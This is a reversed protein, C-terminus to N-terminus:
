SNKQDIKFDYFEGNGIKHKGIDGIDEENENYLRISKIGGGGNTLQDSGGDLAAAIRVVSYRGDDPQAFLSAM